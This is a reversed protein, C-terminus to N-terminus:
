QFPNRQSITEIRPSRGAQGGIGTATRRAKGKSYPSSTRKSNSPTKPRGSAWARTARARFSTTECRVQGPVVSAMAFGAGMPDSTEAPVYRQVFQPYSSSVDDTFDSGGQGLQEPGWSHSAIDPPSLEFSGYGSRELHGDWVDTATEARAFRRAFPRLFRLLATCRPYANRARPPEIEVVAGDDVM